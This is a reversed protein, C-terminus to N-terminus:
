RTYDSTQIATAVVAGLIHLDIYLQLYRDQASDPEFSPESVDDAHRAEANPISTPRGGAVIGPPVPLGSTSSTRLADMKPSPHKPLARVPRESGCGTEGM